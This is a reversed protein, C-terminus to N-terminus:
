MVSRNGNGVQVALITLRFSLSRKRHFMWFRRINYLESNQSILYLAPNKERTEASCTKDFIGLALPPFFTFFINYMGISWREYIVQGTWYSLHLMPIYLM